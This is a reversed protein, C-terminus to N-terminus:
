RHGSHKVVAPRACVLFSYRVGFRVPPSDRSLPILHHHTHYMKRVDVYLRFLVRCSNDAITNCINYEDHGFSTNIYVRYTCQYQEGPYQKLQPEFSM